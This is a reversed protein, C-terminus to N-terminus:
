QATYGGDIIINQGTIWRAADSLLYVCALSIDEPNGIGIPFGSLRKERDEESLSNLFNEMMPTLVTGPSICNVNIGKPALEVALERVASVIAGKSATYALTGVRAVSATISSIFIVKCGRLYNNKKSIYKLINIGSVFNTTYIDIFDNPKLNRLLLTKEIGAAHIFGNIPGSKSLCESLIYDFEKYDVIDAVLYFHNQGELLKLTDRLREENRGVMIINAGMKACDVACQRGIGSSAGTILITKNQLSFPNYMM